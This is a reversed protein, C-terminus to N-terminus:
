ENKIEPLKDIDTIKTNSKELLYNHKAVKDLMVKEEDSLGLFEEASGVKWGHAELRKNKDINM